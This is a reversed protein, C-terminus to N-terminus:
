RVSAVSRAAAGHPRRPDGRTRGGAGRLRLKEQSQGIVRHGAVFGPVEERKAAVEFARVVHRSHQLKLSMGRIRVNRRRGVRWHAPKGHQARTARHLGVRAVVRKADLGCAHEFKEDSSGQRGWDIRKLRAAARPASLSIAAAAPVVGVLGASRLM